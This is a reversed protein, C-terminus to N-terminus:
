MAFIKGPNMLGLPDLTNKIAKMVDLGVPGMEKELHQIKGM